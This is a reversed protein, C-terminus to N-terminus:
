SDAMPEQSSSLDPHLKSRCEGQQANVSSLFQLVIAVLHVVAM